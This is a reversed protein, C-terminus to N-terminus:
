IEDDKNREMPMYYTVFGIDNEDFRLSDKIYQERTEKVHLGWTIWCTPM